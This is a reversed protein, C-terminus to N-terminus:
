EEKTFYERIHIDSLLSDGVYVWYINESVFHITQLREGLLFDEYLIVSIDENSYIIKYDMVMKYENTEIIRSDMEIKDRPLFIECKGPSAYTLEMRGVIQSFLNKQKETLKAHKENFETTLELNSKWKGSLRADTVGCGSVASAILLIIATRCLFLMKKMNNYLKFRM